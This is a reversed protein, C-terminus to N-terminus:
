FQTAALADALQVLLGNQRMLPKTADLPLTELLRVVDVIAQRLVLADEGRVFLGPWDDGFQVPGTEVGDELTEQVQIDLDEFM